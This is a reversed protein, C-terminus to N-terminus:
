QEALPEYHDKRWVFSRTQLLDSPTKAGSILDRALQLKTELWQQQSELKHQIKERALDVQKNDPGNYSLLADLANATHIQRLVDAIASVHEQNKAENLAAGAAESLAELQLKDSRSSKLVSVLSEARETTSLDTSRLAAIVESDTSFRSLMSLLDGRPAAKWESVLWEVVGRHLESARVQLLARGWDSFSKLRATEAFNDGGIELLLPALHWDAAIDLKLAWNRLEERPVGDAIQQNVYRRVLWLDSWGAKSLLGKVRANVEPLDSEMLTVVVDERFTLVTGRYRSEVEGLYAELLPVSRPDNSRAVWRWDRRFVAETFQLPEESFKEQFHIHPEDRVNERKPKPKPTLYAKLPPSYKEIHDAYALLPDVQEHEALLKLYEAHRRLSKWHGSVEIRVDNNMRSRSLESMHVDYGNMRFSWWYGQESMWKMVVLNNGRHSYASQTNHLDGPIASWEASSFVPGNKQNYIVVSEQSPPEQLPAVKKDFEDLTMTLPTKGLLVGNCWVEVGDFGNSVTLSPPAAQESQPAASFSRLSLWAVSTVLPILLLAPSAAIGKWCLLALVLVVAVVLVGITQPKIQAAVFKVSEPWGNAYAVSLATIAVPLVLTVMAAISTLKRRPAATHM